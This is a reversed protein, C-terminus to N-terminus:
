TADRWVRGRLGASQGPFGPPPVLNKTRIPCL